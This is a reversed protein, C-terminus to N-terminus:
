SVNPLDDQNIIEFDEDSEEASVSPPHPAAAAQSAVSQAVSSVAEVLTKAMNEIAVAAAARSLMESFPGPAEPLSVDGGHTTTDSFKLGRSLSLDDEDSSDDGNFHRSRFRIGDEQEPLAPPNSEASEFEVLYELGDISEEEHSPMFGLGPTISNHTTSSDVFCFRSLINFNQTISVSRM